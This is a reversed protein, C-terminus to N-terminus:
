SSEAHVFIGGGESVQLKLVGDNSKYIGKPAPESPVGSLRALPVSDTGPTAPMWGARRPMISGTGHPQKPGGPSGDEAAELKGTASVGHPMRLQPEDLAVLPEGMPRAQDLYAHHPCVACCLFVDDTM